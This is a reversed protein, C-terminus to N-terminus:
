SALWVLGKLELESLLRVLIVNEDKRLQCETTVLISMQATLQWSNIGYTYEYLNELSRRSAFNKNCNYHIRHAVAALQSGCHMSTAHM